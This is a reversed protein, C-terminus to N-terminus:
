SGAKLLESCSQNLLQRCRWVGLLAVLLAGSVPAIAWWPWHMYVNLEFVQTKLLYLAFEAVIVALVGAIGGLLAFELGTASRLLWGSAGFTRLVALERQRTAMGAETQAILVLGSALLVLVLVLTLSLSVQEIIQRLQEVMAGVDIISVTPFQQILALIVSAKPMGEANTAQADLGKEDLFFSAMSTYAFPALAEQTFIMFFNPQLTEWHVTRISAVKVTLEQNDIIYTLKDGLGIGLREAVGSEVSVDDTAQNFQGEILENNAPLTNRWTLNLERSIGVRGKEGAERQENSILTEGNIQTLRGRIVPYIDTATIGNASMFDHLPKADDPAINVLFYNPANEPLQKQWENLLDQRLALITLLLVLAASFGVLQVANQRARRRLGALALQLPNTTKMGISHGARIMVFGLVSLLVGLLLVAAVVTLTLAWSQSYLYGLLAMAGLSLLLHLWMGLQLGELQRQLVRLPPIALLRMLPYASFMFASILGTSIGLLLPRTLPPSYAAIEPPLLYSIGFDLLGGGILGLGIGLLTVLLLHMGFLLRIQKASAGFTKLMAVVDYHRQCYRQAAIGIAACALAIGMLSALLLFREARKVAGAIPSDGSQVDVWRQTSNLLPKASQEFAILAAEDGAFQYLYTVRSGPQIVGTKAVDEMRMLVIPSSAFPNFGADPLRSIENSLVFESNGLEISKPYGLLGGLRTEFWIEDAKPLAKTKGTTLEIEGKLPYGVEVARVTVLQFKDGSYVMSNFQMSTVHKLGLEEAKALITPDIIVPSDIIRDAAIFAAAEGNIAVQLRESVRALGSVSLVALTIALIILLLQGQQLERKFLRWALSLEM